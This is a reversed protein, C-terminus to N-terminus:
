DESKLDLDKYISIVVTHMMQSKVSLFNEIAKPRAEPWNNLDRYVPRVYRMRFNSNAFELVKDLRNLLRGKIYLRCLRSLLECNKTNILGYTEELLQIWEETVPAKIDNQVLETLVEILQWVHLGTPKLKPNGRIADVTNNSWIEVQEDVENKQTMDYNPVIPIFGEGYLWLDWDIQALKDAATENFYEYLTTKFDFSDVAKYAYKNLYHRFFPEFVNPGGLLDEIYRLFNQGKM